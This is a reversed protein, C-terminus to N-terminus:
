GEKPCAFRPRVMLGGDGHLWENMEVDVRLIGQQVSGVPNRVKDPGRDLVPVIGEGDGVVAVKEARELEVLFAPLSPDPGNESALDIHGHFRHPFLMGALFVGIGM